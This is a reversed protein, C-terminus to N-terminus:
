FYRQRYNGKQKINKIYSKAEASKIEKENLYIKQVKNIEKAFNIRPIKNKSEPMILYDYNFEPITYESKEKKFYNNVIPILEFLSTYIQSMAKDIEIILNDTLYLYHVFNNFGMSEILNFYDINYNSYNEKKLIEMVQKSSENREILITISKNYQSIINNIYTPDTPSCLLERKNDFIFYLHAPEIKHNNTLNHIISKVEIYKLINPNESLCNYYNTKVGWLDAHFSKLKLIINLANKYNEDIKKQKDDKKQKESSFYYALSASIFLGCFSGIWTPIGIIKERFLCSPINIKDPSLCKIQASPESIWLGLLLVLLPCLILFLIRNFNGM